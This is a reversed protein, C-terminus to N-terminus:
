LCSTDSISSPSSCSQSQSRQLFAYTYASRRGIPPCTPTSRILRPPTSQNRFQALDNIHQLIKTHLIPSPKFHPRPFAPTAPHKHLPPLDHHRDVHGWKVRFAKPTYCLTPIAFGFYLPYGRPFHVAIVKMRPINASIKCM